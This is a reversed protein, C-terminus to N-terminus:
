YLICFKSVCCAVSVKVTFGTMSMAVSWIRPGRSGVPPSPVPLPFRYVVYPIAACEPDVVGPLVKEFDEVVAVGGAGLGDVEIARGQHGRAADVRLSNSSRAVLPNVDFVYVSTNKNQPGDFAVVPMRSGFPTMLIRSRSPFRPSRLCLRLCGRPGWEAWPVSPAMPEPRDPVADSNETASHPSADGRGRQTRRRTSEAAHIHAALTTRPILLYTDYEYEYEPEEYGAADENTQPGGLRLHLVVISRSSDARFHGTTEEARDGSWAKSWTIREGFPAPPLKLTCVHCERLSRDSSPPLFSYVRLDMHTANTMGM